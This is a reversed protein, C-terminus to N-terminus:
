FHLSSSTVASDVCTDSNEGKKKTVKDKVRKELAKWEPQLEEENYVEPIEVKDVDKAITTDTNQVQKILKTFDVTFKRNSVLVPFKTSCSKVIDLYKLYYM